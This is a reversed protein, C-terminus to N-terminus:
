SRESIAMPKTTQQSLRYVELYEHVRRVPVHSSTAMEEITKNHHHLEAIQAFEDIYGQVVASSQHLWRAIIEKDARSLWRVIAQAHCGLGPRRGKLKERTHIPHDESELASLDRRITHEDVGLLHVLDLEGLVGGQDLAEDLLRLIRGRRLGTSRERSQVERDAEAHHVSLLVEVKPSQEPAPNSDFRDVELRVQGSNVKNSAPEVLIEEAAKLIQRSFSPSLNFEEELLELFNAQRSDQVSFGPAVLTSNSLAHSRKEAVLKVQTSESKRGQKLKLRMGDQAILLNGEYRGKFIQRIKEPAEDFKRSIHSILLHPVNAVAAFDAIEEPRVHTLEHILLDCRDVYPALEQPSSLDGSYVVRWGPGDLVMGCAIARNGFLTKYKLKELHKTEFFRVQLLGAEIPQGPKASYVDLEYSLNELTLFSDTLLRKVKGRTGKPGYVTLTRPRRLVHNHSLLLGLNAVHDMHWHSLFVSRVELPDLGHDYLLSSVPAGCDILFLTSAVKLAYASAFRYRSPEGSSSGLVILEDPM